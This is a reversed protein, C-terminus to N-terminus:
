AIAESAREDDDQALLDKVLAYDQRLFGRTLYALGQYMGTQAFCLMDDLFFPTWKLVHDHLFNKQNLIIQEAAKEDGNELAEKARHCLVQLYELEVSLHDEGENWSENKDLGASRYIALVEDRADQMLLRKPSMYVSEFPYAAAHADNGHGVFCRTYDIAIETLTNEWINSLYKAIRYYGEDIDNDDSHVPFTMEHLEDLLAQDIEKRYLRVLLGYVAARGEMLQAYEEIAEQDLTTNQNTEQM